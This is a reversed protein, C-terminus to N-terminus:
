RRYWEKTICDQAIVPLGKKIAYTITKTALTGSHATNMPLRQMCCTFVCTNAHDIMWQDREIYFYYSKTGLGEHTTMECYYVFTANKMIEYYRQKYRSNWKNEQGIIPIALIHIIEKPNITVQQNNWIITTHEEKKMIHQLQLEFEQDYGICGGTIFVRIGKILALDISGLIGGRMNQLIWHNDELENLYSSGSPLVNHDSNNDNHAFEPYLKKLFGDRFRKPQHGTMACSKKGALLDDLKRDQMGFEYALYQKQEDTVPTTSPPLKYKLFPNIHQSESSYGLNYAYPFDKILQTRM